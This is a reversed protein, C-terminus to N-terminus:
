SNFCSCECRYYQMLLELEVVGDAGEAVGLTEVDIWVLVCLIRSRFFNSIM